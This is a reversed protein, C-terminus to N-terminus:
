TNSDISFMGSAKFRMASGADCPWTCIKKHGIKLETKYGPSALGKGEKEGWAEFQTGDANWEQDLFPRGMLKPGREVLSRSELRAPQAVQQVPLHM